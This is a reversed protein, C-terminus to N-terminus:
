KNIEQKEKGIQYRIGLQMYSIPSISYIIKDTPLGCSATIMLKEWLNIGVVTNFSSFYKYDFGLLFKEKYTGILALSYYNDYPQTKCMEVSPTLFIDRNIKIRYGTNMMLNMPYKSVTFFGMQPQTIHQISAGFFFNKRSFFLGSNFDIFGKTLESPKTETTYKIFGYRPEIMDGFIMMDWNLSRASYGLTLAFRLRNTKRIVFERSFSFVLDTWYEVSFYSQAYYLGLGTRKRKGISVDYSLSFKKPTYLSDDMFPMFMESNLNITHKKAFGTYAPNKWIDNLLIFSIPNEPQKTTDKKFLFFKCPHKQKPARNYFLSDLNQACLPLALILGFLLFFVKKM